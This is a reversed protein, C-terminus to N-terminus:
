MKACTRNSTPCDPIRKSVITALKHSLSYLQCMRPGMKACLHIRKKMNAALKHVVTFVNQCVQRITALQQERSNGKHDVELLLERLAGTRTHCLRAPSSSPPFSFCCCCCNQQSWGGAGRAPNGFYNRISFAFSDM